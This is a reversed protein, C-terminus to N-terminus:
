WLQNHKLKKTSYELAHSMHDLNGTLNQAKFDNFYTNDSIWLQNHKLKKTSYELAHSM